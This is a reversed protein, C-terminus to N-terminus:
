QAANMFPCWPATTDDPYDQWLRCDTEKCEKKKKMCKRSCERLGDVKM